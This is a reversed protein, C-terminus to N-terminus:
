LVLPSLSIYHLNLTLQCSLEFSPSREGMELTKIAQNYRDCKNAVMMLYPTTTTGSENYGQVSFRSRGVSHPRDFLLSALQGAYGHYGTVVPIRPPFLSNFGAESLAHPHDQALVLLDVVNVVRM